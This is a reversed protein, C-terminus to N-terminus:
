PNTAPILMEFLAANFTLTGPQAEVKHLGGMRIVSGKQTWEKGEVYLVALNKLTYKPIINYLLIHMEFRYGSCEM